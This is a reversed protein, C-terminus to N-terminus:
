GRAPMTHATEGTLMIMLNLEPFWMRKVPNPVVRAQPEPKHLEKTLVEEVEQGAAAERMRRLRRREICDDFCKQSKQNNRSRAM